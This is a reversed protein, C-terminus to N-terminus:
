RLGEQDLRQSEVTPVPGPSLDRRLVIGDPLNVATKFIFQDTRAICSAVFARGWSM